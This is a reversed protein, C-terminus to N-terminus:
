VRRLRIVCDSEQVVQYNNMIQHVPISNNSLISKALESAMKAKVWSQRVPVNYGMCLRILEQKNYVSVFGEKFQSLFGLLRAHSTKKGPSADQEIYAFYIKQTKEHAKEKRQMVAHRHAAAKKIKFARRFDKIFQGAGMRIYRKVIEKFIEEILKQFFRM